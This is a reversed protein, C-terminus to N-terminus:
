SIVYYMDCFEHQKLHKIYSVMLALIHSQSNYKPPETVTTTVEEEPLDGDSKDRDCYLWNGEQSVYKANEEMKYEDLFEFNYTVKKITDTDNTELTLHDPSVSKARKFEPRAVSNSTICRNLVYQAVDIFSVHM